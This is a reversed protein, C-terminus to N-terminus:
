RRWHPENHFWKDVRTTYGRKRLYEAEDKANRESRHSHHHEKKVSGDISWVTVWTFPDKRSGARGYRRRLPHRM